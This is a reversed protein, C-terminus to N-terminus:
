VLNATRADTNLELAPTPYGGRRALATWSEYTVSQDDIVAKWERHERNLLASWIGAVGLGLQERRTIPWLRVYAARGALSESVARMLLLNASGTLLFQGAQRNADVARKIALLLDPERQVEDITLRAALTLLEDPANIARDKIGM